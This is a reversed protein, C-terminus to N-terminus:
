CNIEVWGPDASFREGYRAGLTRLCEVMVQTGVTRGYRIPGGRFPAFGTGFVVGADVLDADEVVHERVVAVAENVLRLMLRQSLEQSRESGTPPVKPRGNIFTYYGQGSKAGLHGAAVLAELRTPIAGGFTAQFIRAVHLCIDLGVTDALLVPGMPMGFAVAARDIEAAPVGEAEMAVAEMLYPMLIRNVLFGPSDRVPLPLRRIAGVFGAARAAAGPDTAPTSVVEVLQMRAVPNFFHLGVFTAPRTLGQSLEELTLSSTNTALLAGPKMRPELGRYLARKAELDEFIAELVLDAKPVGEGGADPILRDM